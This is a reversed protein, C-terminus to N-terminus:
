SGPQALFLEGTGSVEVADEDAIHVAAGPRLAASDFAGAVVVEGVTCLAITPGHVAVRVTDGAVTVTVRELLFDDVPTDYVDVGDALPRPRIVPAPAPTADLVHLLEPVDVHKPTLGGRMVNDSAAMLEVGLGSQYAHLVGAPAFLGEGRRLTVLNMLLAVILGGDGPFDSAAARLVAIEDAFETEGTDAAADLAAAVSAVTAADAEDLAWALVDRLAREAAPGDDDVALRSQLQAVGAPVDDGTAALVSLFRRTEALPRLGVLARFRDSLAVIIEPKHNDDRYLRDAADRPIGAREERAFGEQAQARTPHAQISLSSAAALLKLLFPLAPRGADALAVDLTRGDPTRSPCGPHDGYWIEAEPAGTPRRGELAPILTPSGWSYDRPDNSIPTLM